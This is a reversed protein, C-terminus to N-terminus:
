PRMLEKVLDRHGAALHLIDGGELALEPAALLVQGEREVAVPILEGPRELEALTRGALRTPVDVRYVGTDAGLLLESEIGSRVLAMHLRHATHTTPCVIHAGLGSLASARSPNAVVALALPVRMQARAALAVVANLNDDHSVCAIADCGDATGALVPRELPSGVVTRGAFDEPLAQLSRTDSDLVLVEHGAHLLDVALTRGLGSAGVILIRM